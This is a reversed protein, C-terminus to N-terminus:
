RHRNRWELDRWHRDRFAPDQWSWTRPGSLTVPGSSVPPPPPAASAYPESKMTLYGRHGYGSAGRFTLRCWDGNCRHVNVEAGAPMMAIVPYNPGPGGRLKLETQVVAPDAFSAGASLVVIAAAWLGKKIPRHM